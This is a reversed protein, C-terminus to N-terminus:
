FYKSGGYRVYGITQKTAKPEALEGVPRTLPSMKRRGEPISSKIMGDIDSRQTPSLMASNIIGDMVAKPSARAEAPNRIISQHLMRRYKIYINKESSYIYL